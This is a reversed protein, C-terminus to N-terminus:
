TNDLQRVLPKLKELECFMKWREEYFRPRSQHLAVGPIAESACEWIAGIHHIRPKKEGSFSLVIDEGNMFTKQDTIGLLACLRFYEELHASTFAFLGNLIEVPTDANRRHVFPWEQAPNKDPAFAAGFIGHPRTPYQRLNWYVWQLQGPHLFIDDDVRLYYRSHYERALEFSIGVGSPQAQNILVLRPDAVRVYDEIPYAQSNNSIILRGVFGARLVCQAIQGVNAPRKHNLVIVTLKESEPIGGGVMPSATASQHRWLMDGSLQKFTRLRKAPSLNKLNDWTTRFQYRWFTNLSPM